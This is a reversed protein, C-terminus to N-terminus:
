HIEPASMKQDPLPAFETAPAGWVIQKPGFRVDVRDVAGLREYTVRYACIVTGVADGAVGWEREAVAPHIPRLRQGKHLSLGMFLAQGNSGAGHPSRM